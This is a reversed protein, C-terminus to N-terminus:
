DFLVIGESAAFKLFPLAESTPLALALCLDKATNRGDLAQLLRFYLESLSETCVEGRAPYIVAFSPSQRFSSAFDALVLDGRELIELIQYSFRAITASPALRLPRALLDIKKLSRPVPPAALIALAYHHHYDVLDLALPLLRAKKRERFIEELFQRQL